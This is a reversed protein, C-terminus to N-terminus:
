KSRKQEYNKQWSIMKEFLINKIMIKKFVYISFEHGIVLIVSPKLNLHLYYNVFNNIIKNKHNSINNKIQQYENGLLLM